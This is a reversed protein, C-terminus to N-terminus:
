PSVEISYSYVKPTNAAVKAAALEGVQGIFVEKWPTYRGEATKRFHFEPAGHGLKWYEGDLRKLMLKEIEEPSMARYDSETEVGLVKKAIQLRRPYLEKEADAVARKAAQLKAEWAALERLEIRTVVEFEPKKRLALM